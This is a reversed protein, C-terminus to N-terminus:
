LFLSEFIVIGAIQGFRAAGVGARCRGEFCSPLPRWAM